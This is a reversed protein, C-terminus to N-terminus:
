TLPYTEPAVFFLLIKNADVVDVLGDKNIDAALKQIESLPNGEADVFFLLAKNADVVDILGDDNIDGLTYAPKDADYKIPAKVTTFDPDDSTLFLTFQEEETGVVPYVTFDVKASEATKQDIYRIENSVSPADVDGSVLLVLYEYGTKAATYTVTLRDNAKDAPKATLSGKTVSKYFGPDGAASVPLVLAAAMVLILLMATLKRKM